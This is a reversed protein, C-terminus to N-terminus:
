NKRPHLSIDPSHFLESPPASVNIWFSHAPELEAPYVYVTEPDLAVVSSPTVPAMPSAPMVHDFPNDNIEPLNTCTLYYFKALQCICRQNM